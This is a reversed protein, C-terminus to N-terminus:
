ITVVFSFYSYAFVLRDVKKLWPNTLELLVKAFHPIGTSDKETNKNEEEMTKVSKLQLMFGVYRDSSNLIECGYEPNRDTTVYQPLVENICYVGMGYWM